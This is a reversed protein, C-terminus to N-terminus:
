LAKYRKNQVRVCLKYLYKSIRLCMASIKRPKTFYRSKIVFKYQNNLYSIIQQELEKYQNPDDIILRDLVYYYAWCLRMNGIPELEPYYDIILQYNRNYAEIVNMYKLDFKKTTISDNRHIYYYKQEPTIVIRNCQNIVDFIVFADEAIKGEPYRVRDFLTKKYLKNVATVSTITAEFVIKIAEKASVVFPKADANVSRIKGNFVDFLGCMSLDSETTEMNEYLVQYMDLTIYDDSDVFGIYDGHANDIGVNRASSLGGNKKSIVRIRFDKKEWDYCIRESNDTSGDNVLIIEINSYTQKVISTICKDLYQEVNYVPVIISILPDM